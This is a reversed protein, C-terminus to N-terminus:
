NLMNEILPIFRYSSVMDDYSHINMYLKAALFITMISFVAISTRKNQINFFISPIILIQVFDYFWSMRTLTLAIPSSLFFLISGFCYLNFLNRINGIENSGKDFLYFGIALIFGRNFIAKIITQQPSLTANDSYDYGEELYGESRMLVGQGLLGGIGQLLFSMLSSLFLSLVLFIVIKKRSIDAHYVWWAPLFVLASYHISTALLVFFLFYLFRRQEIYYIAYFTIAVAIYQRVYAVNCFYTGTLVFLSTLPFVSMKAMGKTQFFFLITSFAFLVFTFHDILEKAAVILYSFGIEHDEYFDWTYLEYMRYYGEWDPGYEWRLFSLIYFLVCLVIFIKKKTNEEIGVNIELHSFFAVIFFILFFFFM